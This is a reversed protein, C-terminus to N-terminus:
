DDHDFDYPHSTSLSPALKLHFSTLVSVTLPNLEVLMRSQPSIAHQGL